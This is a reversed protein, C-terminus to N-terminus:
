KVLQSVNVMDDQVSQLAASNETLSNNLATRAAELEDLKLLLKEYIDNSNTGGSTIGYVVSVAKIAKRAENIAKQNERIQIRIDSIISQLSAIESKIDALRQASQTALEDIEAADLGLDELDLMNNNHQVTVPQPPQAPDATPADDSFEIVEGAEYVRRNTGPMTGRGEVVTFILEGFDDRNSYEVPPDSKVVGQPAKVIFSPVIPPPPQNSITWTVPTSDEEDQPLIRAFAGSPSLMIM